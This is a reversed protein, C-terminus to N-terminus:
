GIEHLSSVFGEANIKWQNTPHLEMYRRMLDLINIKL